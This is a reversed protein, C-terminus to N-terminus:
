KILVLKLTKTFKHGEGTAYISYFYVGSALSSADFDVKYSGASYNGDVLVAVEKGNMDYVVLKVNGTNPLAFEINTVPNFPNPYNQSIGYSVPLENEAITEVSVLGGCITGGGYLTGSGNITNACLDTGTLVGMSTGSELTLVSQSNISLTLGLITILILIKM